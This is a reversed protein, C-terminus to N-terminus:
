KKIYSSYEKILIDIIKQSFIQNGYTNVHCCDDTYVTREESNFIDTFDHFNINANKYDCNRDILKHYYQGITQGWKNEKNFCNKLEYDSLKKSGLLYQNPQLIHIYHLDKSECITNILESSDFWVDVIYDIDNVYFPPGNAVKSSTEITLKNYKNKFIKQYYKSITLSTFNIANSNFLNLSDLLKLVQLENARNSYLDYILKCNERIPFSKLSKQLLNYHHISPYVPHVNNRNNYTSLALDNFGDINLIFDFEFGYLMSLILINLQQPQKYGGTALNVFKIKKPNEFKDRIYDNCYDNMTNAFIEAFSGGLVGILLYDDSKKSPYKVGNINLMGYDNFSSTNEGWPYMGKKGIYGVYPNVEYLGTAEFSHFKNNELFKIRKKNEENIYNKKIEKNSTKRIYIFTIIEFLLLAFILSATFKFLFKWINKVKKM